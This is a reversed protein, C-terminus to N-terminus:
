LREKERTLIFNDGCDYNGLNYVVGLQSARRQRTKRKVVVM